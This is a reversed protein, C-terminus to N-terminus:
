VGKFFMPMPRLRLKKPFELAAKLSDAEDFGSPAIDLKATSGAVQLNSTDRIMTLYGHESELLLEALDIDVEEILEEAAADHRPHPDEISSTTGAAVEDIEEAFTILNKADIGIRLGHLGYAAEGCRERRRERGAVKAHFGDFLHGERTGEGIDHDGAGDEVERAVVIAKSGHHAARPTDQFRATEEDGAECGRNSHFAHDAAHRSAAAQQWVTRLTVQHVFLKQNVERLLQTSM